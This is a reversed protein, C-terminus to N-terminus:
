YKEYIDSGDKYGIGIFRYVNLGDKNIRKKSINYKELLAKGIDRDSPIQFGNQICYLRVSEYLSKVPIDGNQIFEIEEDMFRQIPDAEISYSAIFRESDENQTFVYGREMLELLARMSLSFIWNREKWLKQFLEKDQEEVSISKNFLLVAIRNVFAKTAEFDTTGPLANGAFILKCKPMFSFADKGKYEATINDGGTIAKIISIDNLPSTKMEAQINIKKGLLQARNFPTNLEHISINSVCEDGVLNQLFKLAISKGSNPKGNLFLIKKADNSDSLCYGFFELLLQRKNEDGGLSTNCFKEFNEARDLDDYDYYEADICYDFIYSSSHEFIDIQGRYFSLVGNRCNLLDKSSNIDNSTFRRSCERKIREEVEKVKYTTVTKNERDTLSQAILNALGGSSLRKYFGMEWIYQYIINDDCVAFEFQQCLRDYMRCSPIAKKPDDIYIPDAISFTNNSEYVEEYPCLDDYEFAYSDYDYIDDEYVEEDYEDDSFDYELDEYINYKKEFKTLFKDSKKLLKKLKKSM